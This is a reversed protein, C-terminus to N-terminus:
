SERPAKRVRIHGLADPRQPDHAVRRSSVVAVVAALLPDACSTSGASTSRMARLCVRPENATHATGRRPHPRRAAQAPTCPARSDISRSRASQHRVVQLANRSAVDGRSSRARSSRLSPRGRPSTRAPPPLDQRLVEGVEVLASGATRRASRRRSRRGRRSCRSAAPCTTSSCARAARTGGARCQAPSARGCAAVVVAGARAGRRPASPSGCRRSATGRRRTDVLDCRQVQEGRPLPSTCAHAGACPASAAASRGVEASKSMLDTVAVSKGVGRAAASSRM